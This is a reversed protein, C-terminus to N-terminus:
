YTNAENHTTYNNNTLFTNTIDRINSIKYSNNINTNNHDINDDTMVIIEKNENHARQWKTPSIAM